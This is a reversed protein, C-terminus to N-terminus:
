LLIDLCVIYRNKNVKAKYSYTRCMNGSAKSIYKTSLYDGRISEKALFYYEKLSHDHGKKTPTYLVQPIDEKITDIIQIGDDETLIYIAEIKKDNQIVNNLMINLDESDQDLLSVISKAIEKSHELLAKKKNIHNKIINKYSVGINLVIDLINNEIEISELPKSFYFGQFIDIDKKMCHLIESKSEVGEALVMAGIQHCMNSIGNLVQSNVFNNHIDYILSRDVKIIHPKILALRDFSSYGTGFDDIAIIFGEKKHKLVFEELYKNNNVSDEKIEIVINSTSINNDKVTKIFGSSSNDDIVSSEFNLFLLITKDQEYYKKFKKIALIRVYNDLKTSLGEDRAQKFLDIPSIFNGKKDKARTLAEFAYIKKDKINVIPQLYIEVRKDNIIDNIM